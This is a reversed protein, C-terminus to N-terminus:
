AVRKVFFSLCEKYYKDSSLSKGVEDVLAEIAHITLGLRSCQQQLLDLEHPDNRHFLINNALFGSMSVIMILRNYPSNTHLNGHEHAIDRYMAPFNWSEMLTAGLELHDIGAWARELERLQGLKGRAHDVIAEYGEQDATMFALQGINHLLGGLFAEEELSALGSVHSLRRAIFASTVAQQWYEQYLRTSKQQELFVSATILVVMNRINKFGLLSIALQLSGIEKQRAYLASNAVRLIKATLGPDVRVTQELESFSVNVGDRALRLIKAAMVPMIPLNKVYFDVPPKEQAMMHFRLRRSM